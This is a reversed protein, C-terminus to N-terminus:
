FQMEMQKSYVPHELANQCNIVGQNFYAEKLESGVGKRGLAVARAPVTMIGGFPDFVIEGPNSRMIIGRDVVDKHFPHVHKEEQDSGDNSHQFPFVSEHKKDEYQGQCGRIDDWVSSAYRRWIWHSYRNQKQDGSFGKYKLIDKPLEEAGAYYDFGTPHAVPVANEGEKRFVLLYDANAISGFISDDVITKHALGKAMVRNRVWLPEKWITHRGMYKFGHEEKHRIIAGPLDYVSGKGSNDLLIDCVHVLCCRGPKLIRNLNRSFFSYHDFFTEKDFFNSLDRPDSSYNYLGFFAPSYIELDVSGDQMGDMVDNADGNYIAYHENVVQNKVM